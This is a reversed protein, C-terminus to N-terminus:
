TLAKTLHIELPHYGARMFFKKLILSRGQASPVGFAIRSAGAEKAKMEVQDLLWRTHRRKHKQLYLYMGVYIKEKAWSGEVVYGAVGGVVLGRDKVVVASQNEVMKTIVEKVRFTDIQISETENFGDVLRYIGSLDQPQAIVALM